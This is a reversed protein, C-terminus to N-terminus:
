IDLFWGLGKENSIIHKEFRSNLVSIVKSIKKTDNEKSKITIRELIQSAPRKWEPKELFFKLIKIERPSLTIKKNKFTIKNTNWYELGKYSLIIEPEEFEDDMKDNINETWYIKKRREIDIVTHNKVKDNYLNTIYLFGDQELISLITLTAINKSWKQPWKFYRTKYSNIIKEIKNFQQKYPPTLYNILKKDVDRKNLREELQDFIINNKFELLNKNLKNNLANEDITYYFNINPPQVEKKTFIFSDDIGEPQMFKRTKDNNRYINLINEITLYHLISLVDRFSTNRYTLEDLWIGTTNMREQSLLLKKYVFVDKDQIPEGFILCPDREIKLQNKAKKKM